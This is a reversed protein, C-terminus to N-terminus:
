GPSAAVIPCFPHGDPDAPAVLSERTDRRRDDTPGLVTAILFLPAESM